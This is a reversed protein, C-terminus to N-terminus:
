RLLHSVLSRGGHAQLGGHPGEPDGCLLCDLGDLYRSSTATRRTTTSLAEGAQLGRPAPRRHLLLDRAACLMHFGRYRIGQVLHQQM